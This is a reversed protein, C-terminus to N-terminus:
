TNVISIIHANGGGILSIRAGDNVTIIRIEKMADMIAEIEGTM